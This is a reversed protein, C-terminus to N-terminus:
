IIAYNESKEVSKLLFRTIKCNECYFKVETFDSGEIDLDFRSSAVVLKSAVKIVPQHCLECNIEM